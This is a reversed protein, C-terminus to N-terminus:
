RRLLNQLFGTKVTHPSTGDETHEINKRAFICNRKVDLAQQSFGAVKLAMGLSVFDLTKDLRLSDPAVRKEADREDDSIILLGGPELVRYMDLAMNYSDRIAVGPALLVNNMYIETVVSDPLPMRKADAIIFQMFERDPRDAYDNKFRDLTDFLLPSKSRFDMWGVGEGIHDSTGGDIGLYPSAASFVRGKVHPDFGYGIELHLGPKLEKGYLEKRAEEIFGEPLDKSFTRDFVEPVREGPKTGM